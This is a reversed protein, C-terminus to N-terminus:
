HFSCKVTELLPLNPFNELSVLGISNMSLFTLGQFRELFKKDEVSLKEMKVQADLDLEEVDEVDKLDDSFNEKLKAELSM